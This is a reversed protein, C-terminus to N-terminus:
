DARAAEWMERLDPRRVKGRDNKPLADIFHIEKPMRYDPLSAKCHAAIEAATLSEGSRGVVYCVVEEGYIPDPVGVAAAEHVGPHRLLVNDIEAPAINVGGRIILDKLRGTVTIFGDEDMVALDGLHIRRGKLDEREGDISMAAVVCQPGGLTVEGEVGPPCRKGDEDVILFEQHRAPPGVTGKRCYDHRNGCVWGGESCGYFQLLSVGYRDEFQQWREPALPATSSSMFRLSAIDERAIEVPDDLLMNIVTPIGISFTIRNDRIWDFFRSHSFRRAFHLTCGTQMWPLLSAGQASNWGFSRYELTRDAETLGLFDITSLGFLWHGLMDCVFLKPTDTTGSTCYISGIDAPANDFDLEPAAPVSALRAFFEDTDAGDAPGRNWRGFRHIEGEVGDTMRPGDMAEHWLTLKPGIARLIRAIYGINMEVNIPCIAAGARWIGMWLILKELREESLVAVHDGRGIGRGALFNAIRNAEAHLEGWTISSGQDLDVLAVRDADRAKYADLLARVSTFPIALDHEAGPETGGVRRKM